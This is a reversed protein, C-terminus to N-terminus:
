RSTFQTGTTPTLRSLGIRALDHSNAVQDGPLTLDVAEVTLVHAYLERAADTRGTQAYVTALNLLVEPRDPFIRRDAELAKEARAYDGNMIAVHAYSGDHDKAIAASGPVAITAGVLLMMAKRM